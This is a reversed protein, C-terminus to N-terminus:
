VHARGIKGEVGVAASCGPEGTRIAGDLVAQSSHAKIASADGTTTAPAHATHHSNCAGLLLAVALLRLPGRPQINNM